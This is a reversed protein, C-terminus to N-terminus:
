YIKNMTLDAIWYQLFKYPDKEILTGKKGLYKGSKLSNLDYILNHNPM